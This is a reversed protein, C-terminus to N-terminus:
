GMTVTFWSPTMHLVRERINSSGKRPRPVEKKPEQSPPSTATAATDNTSSDSTEDMTGANGNSNPEEEVETSNGNGNANSKNRVTRKKAKNNSSSSSSPQDLSKLYSDGSIARHLQHLADNQNPNVTSGSDMQSEKEIPYDVDYGLAPDNM